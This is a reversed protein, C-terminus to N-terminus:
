DRNECSTKLKDANADPTISLAKPSVKANVLAIDPLM